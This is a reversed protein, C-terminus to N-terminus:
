PILAYNVSYTYSSADGVNMNVSVQRSPLVYNYGIAWASSIGPYMAYLIGGTATIATPVPNMNYSRLTVPDRGIFRLMLGGTGSAATIDLFFAIGKFGTCDIWGSNVAATRAASALATGTQHCQKAVLLALLERQSQNRTPNFQQFTAETIM